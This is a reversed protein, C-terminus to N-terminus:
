RPPLPPKPFQEIACTNDTSRSCRKEPAGRRVLLPSAVEPAQTVLPKATLQTAAQAEGTMACLSMVGVLGCLALTMGATFSYLCSKKSRRQM